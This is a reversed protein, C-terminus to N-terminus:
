IKSILLLYELPPYLKSALAPPEPAAGPSSLVFARGSAELLMGWLRPGVCSRLWRRDKERIKPSPAPFSTARSGGCPGDGPSLM